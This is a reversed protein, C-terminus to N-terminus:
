LSGSGNLGRLGCWSYCVHALDQPWANAVGDVCGMKLEVQTM